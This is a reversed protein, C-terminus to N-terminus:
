RGWGGGGWRADGRYRDDSVYRGDRDYWGYGQQYRDYGDLQHGYDRYDGEEAEWYDRPYPTHQCDYDGSSSGGWSPEYRGRYRESFRPQCLHQSWVRNGRAQIVAREEAHIADRVGAFINNTVVARGSAAAVGIQRASVRSETLALEGNYLVVGKDAKCIRSGTIGVSAGEIAVGEVFGCIKTNDIQVRGHDRASRVIVGIARPGFNNPQESGILTVASLISPAGSGPTLEFGSQSGSVVVEYATLATGDAVVAPAVTRADIVADRIDLLGGDTYIAAEDGVHRFGVRNLIIEAGYGVVCAADGARPSAFVVDRVEVRVGQAVTLCPLGDPAVLTPTARNWDRPNFGSDGIITLPRDINLWGVCAGARSRIILTGGPRVRQVASEIAGSGPNGGCDVLVVEELSPPRPPVHWGPGRHSRYDWRRHSRARGHTPPDLLVGFNPRTQAEVKAAVQAQAPEPLATLGLLTGSGLTVAVAATAALTRINM